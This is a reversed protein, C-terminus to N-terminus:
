QQRLRKRARYMQVRTATSKLHLRTLIFQVKGLSGSEWLRVEFPTKTM